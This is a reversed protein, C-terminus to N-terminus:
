DADRTGRTERRSEITRIRVVSEALIAPRESEEADFAKAQILDPIMTWHEPCLLAPKVVREPCRPVMCQRTPSPPM